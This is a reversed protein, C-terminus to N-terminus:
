DAVAQRLGSDVNRNEVLGASPDLVRVQGILPLLDGDLVVAAM